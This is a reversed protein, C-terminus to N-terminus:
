LTHSSPPEQADALLDLPGVCLADALRELYSLRIDATGDEIRDLLPRSIGAIYAFTQKNLHQERRLRTVNAAVLPSLSPHGEENRARIAFLEFLARRDFEDNPEM